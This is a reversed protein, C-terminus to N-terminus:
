ILPSFKYLFASIIENYDMACSNNHASNETLSDEIQLDTVQPILLQLTHNVTIYMKHYVNESIFVKSEDSDM